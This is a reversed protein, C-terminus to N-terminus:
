LSPIKLTYSAPGWAQLLPSFSASSHLLTPFYTSALRHVGQVGHCRALM